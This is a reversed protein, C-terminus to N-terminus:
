KKKLCFVAYSIRMLSQLESTQEESRPLLCVRQQGPDRRGIIERLQFTAVQDHFRHEFIGSDFGFGGALRFRDNAFTCYEGGVSGGKRYRLERLCRFPRVLKDSDM